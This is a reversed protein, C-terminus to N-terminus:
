IIGSSPAEFYLERMESDIKGPDMREGIKKAQEFMSKGRHLHVHKNFEAMIAKAANEDRSAFFIQTIVKPPTEGAGCLFLSFPMEFFRIAVEKGEFTIGYPYRVNKCVLCANKHRRQDEIFANVLWHFLPVLTYQKYREFCKCHSKLDSVVVTREYPYGNGSLDNM